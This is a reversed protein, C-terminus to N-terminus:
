IHEYQFHITEEIHGTMIKIGVVHLTFVVVADWSKQPQPQQPSTMCQEDKNNM